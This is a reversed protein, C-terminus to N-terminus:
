SRAVKRPDAAPRANTRRANTRRSDRQRVVAATALVGGNLLGFTGFVAAMPRQAGATGSGPSTTSATGSGSETGPPATTTPDGGMVTGDPMMHRHGSMPVAAVPPRTQGGGALRAALWGGGVGLAIACAAPLVAWVLVTRRTPM